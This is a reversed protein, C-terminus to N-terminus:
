SHREHYFYAQFFSTHSLTLLYFIIRKLLSCSVKANLILIALSPVVCSLVTDVSTMVAMMDNYRHHPGCLRRPGLPTSFVFVDYALFIYLYLVFTLGCIVGVVRKAQPYLKFETEIL